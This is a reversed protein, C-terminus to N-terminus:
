QVSKGVLEEIFKQAAERNLRESQYISKVRSDITSASCIKEQASALADYIEFYQAAQIYFEFPKDVFEAQVSGAAKASVSIGDVVLQYRKFHGTIAVPVVLDGGKKSLLSPGPLLIELSTIDCLNISARLFPISPPISGQQFMAAHEASYKLRRSELMLSENEYLALSEYRLVYAGTSLKMDGSENLAELLSEVESLLPVTELNILEPQQGASVAGCFIMLVAAIIRSCIVKM